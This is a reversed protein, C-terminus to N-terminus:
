IKKKEKIVEETIVQCGRRWKVFWKLVALSYEERHLINFVEDITDRGANDTIRGLTAALSVDLLKQVRSNYVTEVATFIDDNERLRMIHIDDEETDPQRSESYTETPKWTINQWMEKKM